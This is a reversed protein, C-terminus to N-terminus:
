FAVGVPTGVMRIGRGIDRGCMERGPLIRYNPSMPAKRERRVVVEEKDLV